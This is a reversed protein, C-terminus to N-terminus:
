PRAGSRAALAASAPAAPAGDGDPDAAPGSGPLGDRRDADPEAAPPRHPHNAVIWDASFMEAPVYDRSFVRRDIRLLTSHRARLDEMLIMNGRWMTGDVARLDHVTQRKALRGLADFHETRDIFLNDARIHHRRLPRATVPDDDRAFVDVQHHPVGAEVRTRRRVYRYDGLIEGVLNEITFDTGLFNATAGDSDSDILEGRLAPLYVSVDLDLDPLRSALLAVGEVERPADFLLLMRATGDDDVRSFRRLIRTERAGDRDELVMSLQEFVFPYQQHREHVREMLERGSLGEVEPAATLEDDEPLAQAPADVLGAPFASEDAAAATESVVGSVVGSAVGSDVGSSAQARAVPSGCALVLLLTMPLAFQVSFWAGRRRGGRASRRRVARPANM